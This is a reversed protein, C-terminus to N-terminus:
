AGPLDHRLAARQLERSVPQTLYGMCGSAALAEAVHGGPDVTLALIPITATLPEGRLRRALDFGHADPLKVDLLILNPGGAM